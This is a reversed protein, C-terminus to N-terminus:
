THAKDCISLQILDRQKDKEIVPEVGHFSNDTKLFCLVSNPVYEVTKVRRFLDFSYHPGGQCRFGSDLPEYISTGLSWDKPTDPLYFLIVIVKHGSDTHPALEYGTFDRIVQLDAIFDTTVLQDGFRDGLHSRFKQLLPLVFERRRMWNVLDQWITVNASQFEYGTLDDTNLNYRNAYPHNEDGKGSTRGTNTIWHYAEIPLKSKMLYTYYKAPFIDMVHFHPYPKSSIEARAIRELVCQRDKSSLSRTNEAPSM